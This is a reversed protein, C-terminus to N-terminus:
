AEGGKPRQAASHEPVPQHTLWAELMANVSEPAEQQVWHSVGPLYRLTLDRVHKETGFTTAKTLAVDEEGWIMLTRTEIRPYGLARQR